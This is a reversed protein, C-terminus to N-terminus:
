IKVKKPFKKNIFCDKLKTMIRRYEYKIKDETTDLRIAVEKTTLIPSDYLGFKYGLLIRTRETCWKDLFQYLERKTEERELAVFLDEDDSPIIDRYYLPSHGEQSCPEDLSVEAIPKVLKPCRSFINNTVAGGIYTSLKVGVNLDYLDIANIMAQLAISIYDDIYSLDFCLRNAITYALRSNHLILKERAIQSGNLKYEKLLNDQEKESLAPPLTNASWRISM